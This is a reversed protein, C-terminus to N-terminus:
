APAAERAAPSPDAATHYYAMGLLAGMLVPTYFILFGLLIPFLCALVCTYVLMYAVMYIVFFAAYLIGLAMLYNTFGKRALRWVEGFQFASELSGLAVMRTVGVMALFSLFLSVLFTIGLLVMGVGQAAFVGLLGLLEPPEEGAAAMAFIAGFWAGYACCALLWTPLGYVFGVLWFRLGDGFLQGWNDWEPLALPEGKIARRMIRVSYGWLPFLLPWTIIWLSVGGLGLLGGVLFKSKWREDDFPFRFLQWNINV